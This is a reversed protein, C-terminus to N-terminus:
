RPARTGSGSRCPGAARPSEASGGGFLPERVRRPYGGRRRNGGVPAAYLELRCALPPKARQPRYQEADRGCGSQHEDDDAGVDGHQHQQPRHLPLPFHRHAQREARGPPVDDPHQERFGREETTRREREAHREGREQEARERREDFRLQATRRRRRRADREVRRHERHDSDDAQERGHRERQRRQRRPASAQRIRQPLICPHRGFPAGHPAHAARQDRELNGAREHQEDAAPSIIRLTTWIISTSRPNSGRPSEADRMM